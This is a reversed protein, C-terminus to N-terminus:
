NDERIGYYRPFRPKDKVGYGFSRWHIARGIISSPSKLLAIREAHTMTGPAIRLEGWKPDNAIITGVMGSPALGERDKSRKARGLEDRELENQNVHGEELRVVVAEGDTFRKLKMLYGERLTSRGHKYPGAPDRLMVGEYGAELYHNEVWDLDQASTVKTHNVCSIREVGWLEGQVHGLRHEFSTGIGVVCDFLHFTFDPKGDFSMVGSQTRGLPEGTHDHVPSGVILEGDLNHLGNQNAWDQVFRNRIPKANRSYAVGEWILCRVGDLKPSALLPYRLTSLDVGDLSASLMPKFPLM